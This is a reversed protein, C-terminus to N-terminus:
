KAGSEAVRGQTGNALTEKVRIGREAAAAIELVRGDKLRVTASPWGAGEAIGWRSRSIRVLVVL